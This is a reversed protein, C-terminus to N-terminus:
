EGLSEAVGYAELMAHFGAVDHSLVLLDYLKGDRDKVHEQFLGEPKFGLGQFTRVAAKQDPTMRATIKEIGASLAVAFAEQTLLRGVGRGRASPAVLVRLEAVHRSWPDRAPEITAYGLVVGNEETLVTALDGRELDDIWADLARPSTIDRHMFLLDHEPVVRALAQLKARDDSSMLVVRVTRDDLRVERPYDRDIKM